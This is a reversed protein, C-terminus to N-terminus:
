CSSLNIPKGFVEYSLQNSLCKDLFFINNEIRSKNIDIYFEVKSADPQQCVSNFLKILPFHSMYYMELNVILDETAEKKTVTHLPFAKIFSLPINNLWTNHHKNNRLSLCHQQFRKKFSITTSGIYVRPITDVQLLYVGKDKLWDSM